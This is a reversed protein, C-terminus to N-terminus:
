NKVHLRSQNVMLMPNLLSKPPALHFHPFIKHSTYQHKNASKYKSGANSGRLFLHGIRHREFEFSCLHCRHCKRVGCVGLLCFYVAGDTVMLIFIRFFSSGASCTMLRCPSFIIRRRCLIGEVLFALSTVFFTSCFPHFCRCLASLAM